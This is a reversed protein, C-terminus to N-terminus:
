LWIAPVGESGTIKPRHESAQAIVRRDVAARAFKEAMQGPTMAPAIGGSTESPEAFGRIEGSAEVDIGHAVAEGEQPGPVRSESVCARRGSTTSARSRGADVERARKSAPAAARSASNRTRTASPADRASRTRWNSASPASSVSRPVSAPSGNTAAAVGRRRVIKQGVVAGRGNESAGSQRTRAADIAVSAATVRATPSAGAQSALRCPRAPVFDFVRVTTPDVDRHSRRKITASIASESTRSAPAPSKM